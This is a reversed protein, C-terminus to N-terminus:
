EAACRAEVYNRRRADPGCTGGRVLEAFVVKSCESNYQFHSHNNDTWELDIVGKHMAVSELQQLESNMGPMRLDM